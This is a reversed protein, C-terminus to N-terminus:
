ATALHKVEVTYTGPAATSAASAALHTDDSLTTKRSLFKDDDKLGGLASQFASMSGKLQSLATFETTLKTETRTNRADYPAREAAVLQSVLSTVNLGSGVGSSTLTAM